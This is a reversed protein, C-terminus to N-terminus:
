RPVRRGPSMRRDKIPWLHDCERCQLYVLEGAFIAAWALTSWEIVGIRGSEGDTRRLEEAVAEVLGDLDGDLLVLAARVQFGGGPEAAVARAM